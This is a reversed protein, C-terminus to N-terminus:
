LARDGDSAGSVPHQQLWQRFAARLLHAAAVRGHTVARRLQRYLDRDFGVCFYIVPV